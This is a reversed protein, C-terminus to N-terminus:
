RPNMSSRRGWWWCFTISTIMRHDDDGMAMVMILNIMMGPLSLCSGALINLIIPIGPAGINVRAWSMSLVQGYTHAYIYQKCFHYLYVVPVPSSIVQLQAWTLHQNGRFLTKQCHQHQHQINTAVLCHELHCHFFMQIFVLCQSCVDVAFWNWIYKLHAMRWMDRWHM